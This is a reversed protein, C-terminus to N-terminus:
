LNQQQKITLKGNRFTVFIAKSQDSLDYWGVLQTTVEKNMLTQTINNLEKGDFGIIRSVQYYTM